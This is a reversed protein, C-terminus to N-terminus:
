RALEAAPEPGAVAAVEGTGGDVLVTSGVPFRQRAGPVAVVTPVGFERALIALHSLTSGTESVLGALRPLHAALEPSLTEVVLVVGAGSPVDHEVPGAGRG